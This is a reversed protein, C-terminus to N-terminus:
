YDGEGGGGSCSESDSKRQGVVLSTYRVSLDKQFAELDVYTGFGSQSVNIKKLKLINNLNTKVVM